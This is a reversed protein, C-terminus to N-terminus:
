LPLTMYQLFDGCARQNLLEDLYDQETHTAKEKLKQIHNFLFEFMEDDGNAIAMHLANEGQPLALFLFFLYKSIVIYKLIAFTLM